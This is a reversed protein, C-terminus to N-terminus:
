PGSWWLAKTQIQRRRPPTSRAGLWPRGRRQSRQCFYEFRRGQTQYQRRWSARGGWTRELSTRPCSRKAALVMQSWGLIWAVGLELNPTHKPQINLDLGEGLIERWTVNQSKNTQGVESGQVIQRLLITYWAPTATLSGLEPEHHPTALEPM